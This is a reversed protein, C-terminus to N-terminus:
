VLEIIVWTTAPIGVTIRLCKVDRVVSDYSHWKLGFSFRLAIRQRKKKNQFRTKDNSVPTM